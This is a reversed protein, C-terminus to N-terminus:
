KELNDTSEQCLNPGKRFSLLDRQEYYKVRKSPLFFISLFSPELKRCVEREGGGRDGTKSEEFDGEYGEM